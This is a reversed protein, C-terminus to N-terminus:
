RFLTEFAAPLPADFKMREGSIPHEISLQFSHLALRRLPNTESGYDRDGAIPHGMDACHVRIQHKRGTKLAIELLSHRGRSRLVKYHTISLKADPREPGSVVRLAATELLYSKIEGLPKEPVGEVVAYYKKHFRDWSKQLTNKVNYDRAFILVGSADRDLRHVVFVKKRYSSKGGYRKKTEARNVYANVAYLADKGKITETSITLLGSPKDIVIIYPDEYLLKIGLEPSAPGESKSTRVEVSDGPRLVHNFQSVPEGNVSVCRYKLFQRVRTKKMEPLSEFLFPLLEKHDNVRLKIM